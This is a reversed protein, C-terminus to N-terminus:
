IFDINMIQQNTTHFMQNIKGTINPIDVGWSIKVGDNKLPTPIVVVLWIFV